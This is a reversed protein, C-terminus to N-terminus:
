LEMHSQCNIRCPGSFCSRNDGSHCCLEPAVWAPVNGQSPTGRCVASSPAILTQEAVLARTHRTIVRATSSRIKGGLGLRWFDTFYSYESLFVNLSFNKRLPCGCVLCPFLRPSSSTPATCYARSPTALPLSATIAPPM